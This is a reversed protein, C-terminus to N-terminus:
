LVGHTALAAAFADAMKQGGTVNPHVGDGSDSATNFGTDTDVVFVPSDATSQSAAWDPLAANLAQVRSNCDSCNDPTMPIIQAVFMIVNPEVLRLQDLVGTYADLIEPM